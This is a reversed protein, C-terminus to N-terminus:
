RLPGKVIRVRFPSDTLRVTSGDSVPVEDNAEHLCGDVAIWNVEGVHQVYWQGAHLTFRAHRGSIRELGPVAGVPVDPDQSGHARGVVQGSRVIMTVDPADISELALVEETLESEPPEPPTASSPPRAAGVLPLLCKRCFSITDAYETGCSECMKVDPTM